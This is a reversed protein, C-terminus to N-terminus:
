EGEAECRACCLMTVTDQYPEDQQEVYYENHHYGIRAGYKCVDSTWRTYERTTM